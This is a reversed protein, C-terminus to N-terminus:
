SVGLRALLSQRQPKAAEAEHDARLWLGPKWGRDVCARVRLPTPLRNVQALGEVADRWNLVVLGIRAPCGDPFMLDQQLQGTERLLAAASHVADFQDSTRVLTSWAQEHGARIAMTSAQGSTTATWVATPLAPVAAVQAVIGACVQTLQRHLDHAMGFTTLTANAQVRHGAQMVGHMGSAQDDLWPGVEVLVRGYAAAAGPEAALLATTAQRMRDAAAEKELRAQAFLDEGQALLRMPAELRGPLGAKRLAEDLTRIAGEGDGRDWRTPQPSAPGDMIDIFDAV